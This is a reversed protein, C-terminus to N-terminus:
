ATRKPKAPAKVKKEAKFRRYKGCHLGGEDTCTFNDTNFYPCINRFECYDRFMNQIKNLLSEFRSM